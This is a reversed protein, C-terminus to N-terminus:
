IGLERIKRSQLSYKIAKGLNKNIGTVKKNKKKIFLFYLKM